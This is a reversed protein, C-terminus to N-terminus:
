PAEFTRSGGTIVVGRPFGPESSRLRPLAGCAEFPVGDILGDLCAEADGPALGAEDARFRVQLDPLGDRNVDHEFGGPPREAQAGGPGFRLSAPDITGVDVRPSGLVAVALPFNAPLPFRKGRPLVVIEVDHRPFESAVRTGTCAPDEGDVLGDGDNDAGDSCQPFPAAAKVVTPDPYVGTEWKITSGSVHVDYQTLDSTDLLQTRGTVLDHAFVTTYHNCCVVDSAWAITTGDAALWGIGRSDQTIQELTAEEIDYAFVEFKDWGWTGDPLGAWVVYRDLLISSGARTNGTIQKVTRAAIDFLFLDAPVRTRRFIVYEDNLQIGLTDGSVFKLGPLDISENAWTDHLRFQEWDEIVLAYRGSPSLAGAGGNSTMIQVEYDAAALRPAPVLAAVAVLTLLTRSM